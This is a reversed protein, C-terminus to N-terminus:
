MPSMPCISVSVYSVYISMSIPCMSMPCLVWLCLVCKPHGLDWPTIRDAVCGSGSLHVDDPSSSSVPSLRRM